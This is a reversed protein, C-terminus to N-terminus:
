GGAYRDPKRDAQSNDTQGGAQQRAAQKFSYSFCKKAPLQVILCHQIVTIQKRFNNSVIPLRYYILAPDVITGM